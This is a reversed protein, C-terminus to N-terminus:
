SFRASPRVTVSTAYVYFEREPDKSYQKRIADFKSKFYKLISDYDNPREGYSIMYKSLLM